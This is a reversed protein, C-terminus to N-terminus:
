PSSAHIVFRNSLDRVHRRAVQIARRKESSTYGNLLPQVCATKKVRCDDNCVVSSCGCVRRRVRQLRGQDQRATARRFDTSAEANTRRRQTGRRHHRVVRGVTPVGISTQGTQVNTKRKGEPIHPDVCVCGFDMVAEAVITMVDLVESLRPAPERRRRKAMSKAMTRRARKPAQAACPPQAGAGDSAQMQQRPADDEGIVEVALPLYSGPAFLVDSEDDSFM